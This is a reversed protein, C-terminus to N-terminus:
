IGLFGAGLILDAEGHGAFKDYPRNRVERTHDQPDKRRVIYPLSNPLPYM